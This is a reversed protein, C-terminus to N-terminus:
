RVRVTMPKHPDRDVTDQCLVLCESCIAPPVQDPPRTGAVLTEVAARRKGCFSCALDTGTAVTHLAADETPRGTALKAAEAICPGCIYVDPGAIMKRVQFQGRGCFSCARQGFLPDQRGRRLWRRPGPGGDVLQHVRQHSIGLAEAIERMSAGALHLRRVARRYEAKAGALGSELDTVRAAATVADALLDEDIPM